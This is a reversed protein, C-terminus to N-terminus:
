MGGGLRFLAGAYLGRVNDKVGNVGSIDTYVQYETRLAFSESLDYNLGLALYPKTSSKEEVPVGQVTGSNNVDYMAFGFRGLLALQDNMPMMGLVSLTWASAEQKASVSSDTSEFLTGFSTYGFEAGVKPNFQYGVSGRVSIDASDCNAINTCYKHAEAQGVDLGLQFGMLSMPAAQVGVSTGALALYLTTLKFQKLM